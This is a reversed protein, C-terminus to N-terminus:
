PHIHHPGPVHPHPGPVGAPVPVPVVVPVVVDTGGAHQADVGALEDPNYHVRIVRYPRHRGKAFVVQGLGPYQFVRRTADGGFYFPISSKGTRYSQTRYAPGLIEIVEGESMGRRIKALPSDAPVSMEAPKSERADAASAPSAAILVAAAGVWLAHRRNVLRWTQHLSSAHHM